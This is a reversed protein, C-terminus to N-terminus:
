ALMVGSAQSARNHEFNHQCLTGTGVVRRTNYSYTAGVLCWVHLRLLMRANDSAFAFYKSLNLVVSTYSGEGTSKQIVEVM